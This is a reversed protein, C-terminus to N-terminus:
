QYCWPILDNAKELLEKIDMPISKSNDCFASPVGACKEYPLEKIKEDRVIKAKNSDTQELKRGNSQLIPRCTTLTAGATCSSLKHPCYSFSSSNFTHSTAQYYDYVTTAESPLFHSTFQCIFGIQFVVDLNKKKLRCRLQFHAVLM